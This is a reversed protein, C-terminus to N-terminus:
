PAIWGIVFYDGAPLLPRAPREACCVGVSFRGAGPVAAQPVLLARGDPSVAVPASPTWNRISDVVRAAGDYAVRYVFATGLIGFAVPDERAVPWVVYLADPTSGALEVAGEVRPGSLVYVDDAGDARLIALTVTGDFRSSLEVVDGGLPRRAYSAFGVLQRERIRRAARGDADVLYVSLANATQSVLLGPHAPDRFTVGITGEPLREVVTRGGGEAIRELAPPGALLLTGESSWGLDWPREEYSSTQPAVLERERPPDSAIEVLRIRWRTTREAHRDEREFIALRRGDPSLAFRAERREPVLALARIQGTALSIARVAIPGEDALFEGYVLRAPEPPAGPRPATAAPGTPSEEPSPAGVPAPECAALVFALALLTRM